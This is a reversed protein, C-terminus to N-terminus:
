AAAALKRLNHATCIIAWEAKVKEIGRLLFQRFGRAQKIQGFVPEVVQKRLRYRSRHGARRLKASMRALLSGPKLPQKATASKAGHKQRGTAIYGKIRRRGLTRLNAASCYGADASVEDPNRELNAKIADLLPAFQAQDSGNNDLTHAVIIQAPADVAAQANYGQIYGDKTKLIRSEPDTFNRQAKGDPEQKPPAPTKGSKKRGQALRKQEAQERRRAEQEAFAKAEAELETKAARITELRKAKDAVWDPMEDGRKDGYLKDEEADAVEAAKLWRDIEAALEAERKKMREYSM